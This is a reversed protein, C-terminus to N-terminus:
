SQCKGRVSRDYDVMGTRVQGLHGAGPYILGLRVQMDGVTMSGVAALYGTAHGTQHGKGAAAATRLEVPVIAAGSSGQVHVITGHSTVATVIGLPDVVCDVVQFIRGIRIHIDDDPRPASLMGTVRFLLHDVPIQIGHVLQLAVILIHHEDVHGSVQGVPRHFVAIGPIL